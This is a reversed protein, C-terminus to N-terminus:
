DVNDLKWSTDCDCCLNIYKVNTDDYRICIVEPTKGETNTICQSNPCKINSVRPLTPDLKTFKNIVSSSANETQRFTTKSVSLNDVGISDTEKGCNRCYYILNNGEGSLKIYYMNSCNECFHM